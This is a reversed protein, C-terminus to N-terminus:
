SGSSDLCPSDSWSPVWLPVAVLADMSPVCSQGPRIQSLITVNPSTPRLVSQKVRYARIQPDVFSKVMPAVGTKPCASLRFSCRDWAASNLVWLHSTYVDRLTVQLQLQDLLCCWGQWAQWSAGLLVHQQLSLGSRALQFQTHVRTHEFPAQPAVFVKEGQDGNLSELKSFILKLLWHSFKHALRGTMAFMNGHNM